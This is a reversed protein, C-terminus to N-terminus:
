SRSPQDRPGPLLDSEAPLQGNPTLKDVVAPLLKSLQSLLDHHGIGTQRSLEDVTEGGLAGHLENPSIPKNAGAGIWSNIIDEYGGERFRDLLGGLGGINGAPTQEGPRGAMARSALLAMLAMAIPSQGSYAGSGLASRIVQDLLGM